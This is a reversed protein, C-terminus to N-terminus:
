AEEVKSLDHNLRDLFNDEGDDGSVLWDIRQAYVAGKRIVYVADKFREIIEPPYSPYMPHGWEDVKKRGNNKVMQEIENAIMNMEYQKYDFHGGSM